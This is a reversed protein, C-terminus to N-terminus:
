TQVRLFDILGLCALKLLDNIKIQINFRKKFHNMFIFKGVAQM